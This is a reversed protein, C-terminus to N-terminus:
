GLLKKSEVVLGLERAQRVRAISDGPTANEMLGIATDIDIWKVKFWLRKEKETFKPEMKEWVIHALYCYSIVKKRTSHRYEFLKWVEQGIHIFVWSEERVERHLAGEHTEWEKIWWWPIKFYEGDNVDLIAIKGEDDFVVARVADRVLYKLTEKDDVIRDFEFM